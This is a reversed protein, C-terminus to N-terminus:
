SLEEGNRLRRVDGVLGFGAHSGERQDLVGFQLKMGAIPDPLPKAGLSHGESLADLEPNKRTTLLITSFATSASYGNSRYALAGITVSALTCAIGIGYTLLLYFPRYAYKNQFFNVHAPVSTPTRNRPTLPSRHSAEPLKRSM